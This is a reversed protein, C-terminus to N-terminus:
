KSLEDLLDDVSGRKGEGRKYEDRAENINQALKERPEEILRRRVIEILTERQEEPMSDIIDLVEDFTIDKSM